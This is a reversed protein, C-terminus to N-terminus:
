LAVSYLFAQSQLDMFLSFSSPLNTISVLLLLLFWRSSDSFLGRFTYNSSTLKCGYSGTHGAVPAEDPCFSTVKDCTFNTDTCYTLSWSPIMRKESATCLTQLTTQSDHNIFFNNCNAFPTNQSASAKPRSRPTEVDRQKLEQSANLRTWTYMDGLMDASGHNRRFRGTTKQSTTTDNGLSREAKLGRVLSLTFSPFSQRLRRLEWNQQPFRSSGGAPSGRPNRLSGSPRGRGGVAASPRVSVLASLSSKINELHKHQSCITRCPRAWTWSGSKKNKEKERYLGLSSTQKPFNM